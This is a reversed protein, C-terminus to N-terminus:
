NESHSFCFSSIDTMTWTIDDGSSYVTLMTVLESWSGSFKSSLPVAPGRLCTATLYDKQWKVTSAVLAWLLKVKGLYRYSVYILLLPFLSSFLIVGINLGPIVKCATDWKKKKGLQEATDRQSGTSQLMGPKGQGESDGLTQESEHGNVRHHWGAREDEAMEKKEQRWDKGADSDKGYDEYCDHPIPTTLAIGM